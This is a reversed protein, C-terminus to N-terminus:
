QLCSNTQSRLEKSDGQVVESQLHESCLVKSAANPILEYRLYQIYLLNFMFAFMQFQNLPQTNITLLKKLKKELAFCM